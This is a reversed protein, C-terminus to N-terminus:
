IMIERFMLGLCTLSYFFQIVLPCIMYTLWVLYLTYTLGKGQIIWDISLGLLLAFLLLWTFVSWEELTDMSCYVTCTHFTRNIVATSTGRTGLCLSALESKSSGFYTHVLPSGVRSLVSSTGLYKIDFDQIFYRSLWWIIICMCSWWYYDCWDFM